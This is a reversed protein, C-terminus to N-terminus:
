TCITTTCDVSIPIKYALFYSKVQRKYKSVAEYIYFSMCIMHSDMGRIHVELFCVDTM